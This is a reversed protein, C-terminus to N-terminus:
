PAHKSQLDADLVDHGCSVTVSIDFASVVNVGIMRADLVDHGWANVSMAFASEANVGIMDADLVDHGCSVTISIAFTVVTSGNFLSEFSATTLTSNFWSMLSLTM